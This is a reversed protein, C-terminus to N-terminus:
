AADRIAPVLFGAVGAGVTVLGFVAIVMTVPFIVSLVGGIAMAVAMAGFVLQFRFSVVRGMLEAPTREQFLAQSPIIFIMNAIGSGFALGLVLPLNGALAFLVTLAGWAVYGASILRGKAVSAGILGIVFGGLLNGVGQSSEIFTYVAEWGIAENGFVALAFTPMLATLVGVNLQAVSAQITNAFLTPENRLYRYGAHLEALFGRLGAPTPATGDPDETAATEEAAEISDAEAADDTEDAGGPRIILTSLLAASAVYTTADLWFAVPIAAGLAAVFLGALPFGIVDAVTEGVWLSSNATVLEDKAVIRPLIAVRAPRFFISITTLVFVFPYVLLVNTVVAMPIFLVVAARLLDSVILVEKQDWRDVFTGAIASFLLNPLFAAVFVLSSAIPSGTTILVAAALAVQHLRDGFLSILQGSWLATFSGNLALRVYPHRRVRELTEPSPRPLTIAPATSTAGRVTVGTDTFASAVSAEDYGTQDWTRDDAGYPAPLPALAPSVLNGTAGGLFVPRELAATEAFASALGTEPTVTTTGDRRLRSAHALGSLRERIAAEESAELQTPVRVVGAFLFFALGVSLFVDGISAVNELIPVPLPIVDGLILARTLFDAVTPEVVVHLRSTVEGPDIGAIDLAVDWIPMVGGNITIVVANLLIGVFALGLGPYGRNVWLGALLLGFGGALLPLRLTEVIDVQQNLLAETGFRVIVAAFLVSTWRLQVSALNTLRGGSLLGLVLGLLVSAILVPVAPATATTGAAPAPAGPAASAVGAASAM